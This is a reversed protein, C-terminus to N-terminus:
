AEAFSLEEAGDLISRVRRLLTDEAFPKQIFPTRSDIERGLRDTYGSIRLVRVGPQLSRVRRAIEVGNMGPLVMDTILLHIPAPYRSALAIADDATAADLTRYGHAELAGRIFERVDKQDEVLLVTETGGAPPEVPAGSDGHEPTDASAPACQAAPFFVRFTTGLGPASHVTVTGGSQRAIGYVTSLGLGTGKDPGKTTFFPEFIRAQVEPTMGVGTDTVAILVYKGPPVSLCVASFDDEVKAFSTEIFLKGGEPMADRANIALNMVIQEIQARDVSVYHGGPGPAYAIEIDAAIVRRLMEVLGPLLANLCVTRPEDKERRSFTLLQQTLSAAQGGAGAIQALPERLPDGSPLERLLRASYGNIVTLLNNFDHAIGGALRGVSDLKQARLLEATRERVREELNTKLETLTENARATRGAQEAKEALVREYHMLVFAVNIAIWCVMNEAIFLLNLGNGDLLTGLPSAVFYIARGTYFLSHVLLVSGTAIRGTAIRGRRIGPRPNRILTAGTWAYVLGWVLSLEVYSPQSSGGRSEIAYLQAMLAAAAFYTWPVVPRVGIFERCAELTLIVSCTGLCGAILMAHPWAGIQVSFLLTFAGILRAATWRGFGAYMEDSLWLLLAVAAMCLAVLNSALGLTRPDLQM